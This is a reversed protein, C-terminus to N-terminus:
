EAPTQEPSTAEAPKVKEAANRVFRVIVFHTFVLTITASIVAEHIVNNELYIVTGMTVVALLLVVELCILLWYCVLLMIYM